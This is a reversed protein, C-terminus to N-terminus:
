SGTATLPIGTVTIETTVCLKENLVFASYRPLLEYPAGKLPAENGASHCIDEVGETAM